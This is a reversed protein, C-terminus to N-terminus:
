RGYEAIKGEKKDFSNGYIKGKKNWWNRLSRDDAPAPCPYTDILCNGIEKTTKIHKDWKMAYIFKKTNGETVLNPMIQNDKIMDWHMFALTNNGWNTRKIPKDSSDITVWDTKSFALDIAQSLYNETYISHNWPLYIVDVPLETAFTAILDRQHQLGIGFADQEKLSNLQDTGKTTRSKMDTNFYDWLNTYLLKSPKDRLLTEFLRMTKDDIEKLYKKTNQGYRNIHLDTHNINALVDWEKEPVSVLPKINSDLIEKLRAMIDPKALQSLPKMTAKIQHNETTIIDGTKRNVSSVDRKNTVVNLIEWLEPNMNTAQLLDELTLIRKDSIAEITHWEHLKIQM